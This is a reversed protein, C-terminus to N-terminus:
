NNATAEAALGNELADQTGALRQQREANAAVELDSSENQKMQHSVKRRSRRQVQDIAVEDPDADKGGSIPSFHGGRHSGGPNQSKGRSERRATNDTAEM